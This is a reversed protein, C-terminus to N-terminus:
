KIAKSVHVYWMCTPYKIIHEPLTQTSGGVNSMIYLTIRQKYTTTFLQEWTLAVKPCICMNERNETFTYHLNNSFTKPSPPLTKYTTLQSFIYGYFRSTSSNHILICHHDQHDHRSNWIMALTQRVIITVAQVSSM